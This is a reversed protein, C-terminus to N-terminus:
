RTEVDALKIKLFVLPAGFTTWFTVASYRIYRFAYGLTTENSSVLGFVKQLGIYILVLGMMGVLYRLIRLMLKGSTQFRAYQRMMAYGAISGFLAGALTFFPSISRAELAFNQWSQPDPIGAILSHSILGIMIIFVSGIFGMVIQTLLKQSGAWNAVTDLWRMFGWLIIVGIMWGFMVDHPFHAGLYLRSLGIFFLIFVMLFWFWFRKVQYSLYGGVALSDSAHTSPIGYSTEETLKKVGGLWYPRPQHFLLKFVTGTTDILILVLLARFGLRKELTWYIFPIILLYFEIRGLFTFFNMLGDLSPSLTQLTQILGIGIQQLYGM